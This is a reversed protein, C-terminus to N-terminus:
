GARRGLSISQEEEKRREAIDLGEEEYAEICWGLEGGVSVSSSMSERGDEDAPELM